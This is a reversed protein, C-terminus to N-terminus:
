KRIGFFFFRVQPQHLSYTISGYWNKKSKLVIFSAVFLINSKFIVFCKEFVKSVIRYAAPFSLLVFFRGGCRLSKRPQTVGSNEFRIWAAFIIFSRDSGVLWSELVVLPPPLHERLHSLVAKLVERENLFTRRTKSARRNGHKCTYWAHIIPIRINQQPPPTTIHQTFHYIEM